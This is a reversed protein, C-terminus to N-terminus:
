KGVSVDQFYSRACREPHRLGIKQCRQIARLDALVSQLDPSVAVTEKNGSPRVQIGGLEEVAERISDGSALRQSLENAMSKEPGIMKASLQDFASLSGHLAGNSKIDSLNTVVKWRTSTGGGAAIRPSKPFAITEVIVSPNALKQMAGAAHNCDSGSDQDAYLISGDNFFFCYRRLNPQLAITGPVGPVVVSNVDLVGPPPNSKHFLGGEPVFDYIIAYTGEHLQASSCTGTGNYLFFNVKAFTQADKPDKDMEQLKQVLDGIYSADQSFPNAPIKLASSLSALAEITSALANSGTVDVFTFSLGVNSYSQGSGDLFSYDDLVPYQYVPLTLVDGKGIPTLIVARPFQFDPTSNGTPPSIDVDIKVGAQKTNSFWGAYRQAKIGLIAMSVTQKSVDICDSSNGDIVPVIIGGSVVGADAESKANVSSSLSALLVIALATVIRSPM